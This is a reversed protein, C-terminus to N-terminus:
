TPGPPFAMASAAQAIAFGATLALFAAVRLYSKIKTMTSTDKNTV